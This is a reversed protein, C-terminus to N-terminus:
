RIIRKPDHHTTGVFFIPRRRLKPRDSGADATSSSRVIECDPEEPDSGLSVNTRSAPRSDLRASYGAGAAWGLPTASFAAPFPRCGPGAVSTTARVTSKIGRGAM